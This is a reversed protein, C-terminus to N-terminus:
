VQKTLKLGLQLLKEADAATRAEAYIRLIPETGSGRLMLWSGDEALIKVGDSAKVSAIPSKLLKAPTNLKCYEILSTRKELPFQTDVRAFAHPGFEAELEAVLAPLSRKE